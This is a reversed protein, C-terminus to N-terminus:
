QYRLGDLSIVYEKHLADYRVRYKTPYDGQRQFADPQKVTMTTDPRTELFARTIMPELFTAMKGRYAGYIFTTTFPIGHFEAATTDVWHTGMDPVAVGGSVYDQPIYKPDISVTDPGPIIQSQEQESITYFHFDFHPVGYAFAPEHGHPNWDVECHDYNTNVAQVPLSLMYSHESSDTPLGDLADATLRIGITELRGAIDSIVFTYAHGNGITVPSGKYTRSGHHGNQCSVFVMILLVFFLNRNKKM